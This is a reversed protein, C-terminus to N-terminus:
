SSFDTPTSGERSPYGFKTIMGGNIKDLRAQLTSQTRELSFNGENAANIGIAIWGRLQPERFNLFELREITGNGGLELLRVVPVLDTLRRSPLTFCFEVVCGLVNQKGTITSEGLVQDCVGKFEEYRIPIEGDNDTKFRLGLNLFARQLGFAHYNVYLDTVELFGISAPALRGLVEGLIGSANNFCFM